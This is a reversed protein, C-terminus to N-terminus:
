LGQRPWAAGDTYRSGGDGASRALTPPTWDPTQIRHRAEAADAASYALRFSSMPSSTRAAAIM